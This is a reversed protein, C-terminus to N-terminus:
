KDEKRREFEENMIACAKEANKLTDFYVEGLHRQPIFNKEYVFFQHLVSDFIITFATDGAHINEYKFDPCYLDHLQELLLYFHIASSIQKARENTEWTNYNKYHIKDAHQNRWYFTGVDDCTTAIYYASCYSPHYRQNIGKTEEEYIKKLEELEKTKEQIKQELENKTM